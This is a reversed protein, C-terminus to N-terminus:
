KSVDGVASARSATCKSRAAGYLERSAICASLLGLASNTTAGLDISSVNGVSSFMDCANRTLVLYRATRDRITRDYTLDYVDLVVALVYGWFLSARSMISLRKLEPSHKQFFQTMFVVNDLLSFIGDFLVRLVYIVDRPQVVRKELAESIKKVNGLWTGLRMLCRCESMSNGAKVYTAIGTEAGVLKFLAGAGKILKDRSDNAALWTAIIDAQGARGM